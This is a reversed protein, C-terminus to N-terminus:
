ELDLRTAQRHALAADSCASRLVATRQRDVLRHRDGVLKLSSAEPYGRSLLWSLEGVATTLIWRAETGFLVRDEPGPGRHKRTDPVTGSRASRRPPTSRGRSVPGNGM